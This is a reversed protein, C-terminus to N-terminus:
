ANGGRNRRAARVVLGLLGLGLGTPQQACGCGRPEAIPGKGGDTVGADVGGDPVAPVTGPLYGTWWTRCVQGDAGLAEAELYYARAPPLQALRLSYTITGGGAGVPLGAVITGGADAGDSWRLTLASADDPDTITLRIALQGADTPRETERNAIWVAPPQNGGDTPGVTILGFSRRISIGDIKDNMEGFPQYCGPPVERTDWAIVNARDSVPVPVHNIRVDRPANLFPALGTRSAYFTVDALDQPDADDGWQLAAMGDNVRVGIGTPVIFDFYFFHGSATLAALLVLAGALRAM